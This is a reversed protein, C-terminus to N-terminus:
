SALESRPNPLRPQGIEERIPAARPTIRVWGQADQTLILTESCAGCLWYHELQRERKRGAIASGLSADFVYIRGERLYRLPKGCGPNACNNVM